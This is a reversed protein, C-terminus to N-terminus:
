GPTSRRKPWRSARRRTGSNVRKFRRAQEIHFNRFARFGTVKEFAAIASAAQDVSANSLRKAERLYLLYRHKIRENEPHHRRGTAM